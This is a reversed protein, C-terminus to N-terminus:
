GDCLALKGGHLYFAYGNAPGGQAVIVGEAGGAEVKASITLPRGAVRPAAESSLADGAKWPGEAAPAAAADRAAVATRPRGPVWKPAINGKNWEDWAAALEKFKGPEQQALNTKEGLDNALNYLQAGETTAIGAKEGGEVGGGPAKVLKWDGKRIALQQGFRWYLAEHPADKKEGTVYPLLNVGDLKWEQPVTVGAASVATPLIDLQIVPRDDV